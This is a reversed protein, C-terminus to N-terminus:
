PILRLCYASFVVFVAAELIVVCAIALRDILKMRGRKM